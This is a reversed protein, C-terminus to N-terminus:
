PFQLFLLKSTTKQDCQKPVEVGDCINVFLKGKNGSLSYDFELHTDRDELYLDKLNYSVFEKEFYFFCRFLKQPKTISVLCITMMLFCLTKNM